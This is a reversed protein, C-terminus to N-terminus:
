KRLYDLIIPYISIQDYKYVEILRKRIEKARDETTAVAKVWGPCHDSTGTDSPQYLVVWVTTPRTVRLPFVGIDMDLSLGLGALCEKIENLSKRGLSNVKLLSEETESVLEGVYDIDAAKLRNYARASLELEEVKKYLVDKTYFKSQPAPAWLFSENDGISSDSLSHPRKVLSAKDNAVFEFFIEM